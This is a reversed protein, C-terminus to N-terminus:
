RIDIDGLSTLILKWCLFLASQFRLAAAKIMHLRSQLRAGRGQM